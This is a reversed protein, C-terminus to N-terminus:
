PGSEVETRSFTTGDDATTAKQDVTTADDNYLSYASATQTHRNRWAKYLYNVKAVLSTTAAPTGQGPEAYTDVNLADVVVSATVGSDSLVGFRGQDLHAAGTDGKVAMLRGQAYGTSGTDGTYASPSAKWVTDSVGTDHAFATLARASYGWVADAVDGTDAATADTAYLRDYVLEEVVQYEHRVPLANASAEVVLILTGVTNTDTADFECNYYGGNDHVPTTVDSKAALAQGNKSLLVVPSEAEESTSANTLDLFPGILVDVATSQRLINTM